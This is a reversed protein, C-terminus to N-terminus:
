KKWRGGGLYIGLMLTLRNSFNSYTFNGLNVSKNEMFIFRWGYVNLNLNPLTYLYEMSLRFHNFEIGTAISGCFTSKPYVYLFSSQGSSSPLGSISNENNYFSLLGIGSEIFPSFTWNKRHFYLNYDVLLISATNGYSVWKTSHLITKNIHKLGINMNDTLNYNISLTNNTFLYLIADMQGPKWMLDEYPQNISNDM